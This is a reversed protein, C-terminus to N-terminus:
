DKRAANRMEKEENTKQQHCDKCLVQFGEAECFMREVFGPLDEYCRLSGAPEIHDVEVQTAGFWGDCSACVYTNYAVKAEKKAEHKPGWKRFASRLASRIFGFYRAETWKGSNRTRPVKRGM